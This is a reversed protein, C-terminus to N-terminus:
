SNYICAGILLMVTSSKQIYQIIQLDTGFINRDHRHDLKEWDQIQERTFKKEGILGIWGMRM